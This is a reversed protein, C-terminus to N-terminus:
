LEDVLDLFSKNRNGRPAVLNPYYKECFAVRLKKLNIDTKPDVGPLNSTVTMKNEQNNCFDKFWKRDKATAKESRMYALMFSKTIQTKSTPTDTMPNLTHAM